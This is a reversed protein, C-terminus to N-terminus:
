ETQKQHYLDWWPWPQNSAEDNRLRANPKEDPKPLPKLQVSVAPVTQAQGKALKIEQQLQKINENVEALRTETQSLAYTNESQLNVARQQQLQTALKLQDNLEDQLITLKETDRSSQLESSVQTLPKDAFAPMLTVMLSLATINMLQKM